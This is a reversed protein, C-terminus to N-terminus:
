SDRRFADSSAQRAASESGFPPDASPRVRASSADIAAISGPVRSAASRLTAAACAAVGPLLLPFLLPILRM